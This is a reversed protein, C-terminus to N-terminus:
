LLLSKRALCLKAHFKKAKEYKKAFFIEHEASKLMFFKIVESGSIGIRFVAFVSYDVM